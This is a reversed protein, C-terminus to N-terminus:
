FYLMNKLKHYIFDCKEGFDILLFNAYSKYVKAGLKELEDILAAQKIFSTANGKDCFIDIDSDKNAEGRAYSGFLCIKKIGYNNLIPKIIEKIQKLFIPRINKLWDNKKIVKDFCLVLPRNLCLLFNISSNDFNSNKYYNNM